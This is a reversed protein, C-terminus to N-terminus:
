VSSVQLLYQQLVVESSRFVFKLFIDVHDVNIRPFISPVPFPWVACEGPEIEYGVLEEDLIVDSSDYAKWCLYIDFDEVSPLEDFFDADFRFVDPCGIFHHPGAIFVGPLIAAEAQGAVDELGLTYQAGTFNVPVARSPRRVNFPLVAQLAVLTDRRLADPPEAVLTDLTYNEQYLTLFVKSLLTTPFTLVMPRDILANPVGVTQRTDATFSQTEVKILRMPYETFPSIQLANMYTPTALDVELIATAGYQPTAPTTVQFYYQFLPQSLVKLTLGTPVGTEDTIPFLTRSDTPDVTIQIPDFATETDPYPRLPDLMVIPSWVLENVSCQYAPYNETFRVTYETGDTLGMFTINSIDDVVFDQQSFFVNQPLGNSQPIYVAVDDQNVVYSSLNQPLHVRLDDFAWAGMTQGFVWIQIQGAVVNSMDLAQLVETVELYDTAASVSPISVPPSIEDGHVDLCVLSISLLGDAALNKIWGEVYVQNLPGLPFTQSKLVSVTSVVGGSSWDTNQPINPISDTNTTLSTYERGLYSVSDGGIYTTVSSWATLPTKKAYYSGTHANGDNSLAWGVGFTWTAGGAEFSADSIANQPALVINNRRPNFITRIFIPISGGAVMGGISFVGTVSGGSPLITQVLPNPLFNIIPFDELLNLEAWQPGYLAESQEGNTIPTWTWILDQTTVTKTSAPAVLGTAVSGDFVDLFTGVPCDTPYLVGNAPDAKTIQGSAPGNGMGYNWSFKASPELVPQESLWKQLDAGALLQDLLGTDKELVSILGQARSTFDNSEAVIANYRATLLALPYNISDDTVRQGASALPLTTFDQSQQILTQIAAENFTANGAFGGAAIAATYLALLEQYHFAQLNSNYPGLLQM